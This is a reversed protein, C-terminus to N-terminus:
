KVGGERAAKVASIFNEWAQEGSTGMSITEPLGSRNKADFAAHRETYIMRQQGGFGKGKKANSKETVVETFYNAFLVTDAWRHTLNWTKHHMDPGYRDYDAGEPNHFPTVKTHVLCIVAIRKTERLTDLAALLERWDALAVEFGRSYGTFGREGWDGGYDRNCVNEHNLREIGNLTDICLTRYDHEATTLWDVASLVDNWAQM